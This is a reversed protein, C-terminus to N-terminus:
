RMKALLGSAGEGSSSEFAGDVNSKLWGAMPAECSTSGRKRGGSSGHLWPNVYLSRKKITLVMKNNDSAM